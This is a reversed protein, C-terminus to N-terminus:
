FIFVQATVAVDSILYINNADSPTASQYIRAAASIPGLIYGIPVRQLHHPIALIGGPVTFVAVVWEGPLQTIGGRILGTLAIAVYKVWDAVAKQFSFPSNRDYPELNYPIDPM